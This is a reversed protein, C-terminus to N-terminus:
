IPKREVVIGSKLVYKILGVGKAYYVETIDKDDLVNINDKLRCYLVGKYIHNRVNISDFIEAKVFVSNKDNEDSQTWKVNSQRCNFSYIKKSALGCDINVNDITLHVEDDYGDWTTAYLYMSFSTGYNSSSSLYYRERFSKQTTVFLFGASGESFEQRACAGSFNYTIGNNDIMEYLKALSDNVLWAKNEEKVYYYKETLASNEGCSVLTLLQVSLFLKIIFRIAKEM